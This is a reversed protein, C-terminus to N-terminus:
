CGDDCHLSLYSQDGARAGAGLVALRTGTERRRIPSKDRVVVLVDGELHLRRKAAGNQAQYSCPTCQVAHELIGPPDPWVSMIPGVM